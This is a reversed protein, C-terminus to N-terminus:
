FALCSSVSLGALHGTWLDIFLGCVSPDTPFLSLSIDPCIKLDVNALWSCPFSNTLTFVTTCSHSSPETHLPGSDCM